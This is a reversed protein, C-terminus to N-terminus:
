RNSLGLGRRLVTPKRDWAEGRIGLDWAKEMGINHMVVEYRRLDLSKGNNKLTGNKM